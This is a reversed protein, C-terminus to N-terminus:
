MFPVLELEPNLQKITLGSVESYLKFHNKMKQDGDVANELCEAIESSNKTFKQYVVLYERDASKQFWSKVEVIGFKKRQKDFYDREEERLMHDFHKLIKERGNQNPLIPYAYAMEVLPKGVLENEDYSVQIGPLSELHLDSDIDEGL